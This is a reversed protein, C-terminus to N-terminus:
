KGGLANLQSLWATFWAEPLPIPLVGPNTTCRQLLITLQSNLAAVEQVLPHMTRYTQVAAAVVKADIDRQVSERVGAAIAELIHIADQAASVTDVAVAIDEDIHALRDATTAADGPRGDGLLESVEGQRHQRRLSDRETLLSAHRGRAATLKEQLAALQRNHRQVPPYQDVSAPMAIEEQVISM